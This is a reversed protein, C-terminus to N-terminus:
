VTFSGESRLIIFITDKTRKKAAFKNQLGHNIFISFEFFTGVANRSNIIESVPLCVSYIRQINRKGWLNQESCEERRYINPSVSASFCKPKM